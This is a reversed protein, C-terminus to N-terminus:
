RRSTAGACQSPVVQPAPSPAPVRVGPRRPRLRQAQSGRIPQMPSPRPLLREQAPGRPRNPIKPALRSQARERATGRRSDERRAHPATSQLGGVAQSRRPSGRGRGIRFRPGRQAAGRGGTLTLGSQTRLATQRCKRGAAGAGRVAGAATLRVRERDWGGAGLGVSPGAGDRRTPGQGRRGRGSGGSNRTVAM